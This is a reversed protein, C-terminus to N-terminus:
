GVLANVVQQAMSEWKAYAWPFASKQVAQAATALSMRDWGSVTVLVNFFANTSYEPNMLQAVTGWGCSTRQQFLGVSDHDVSAGQHPYQMSARVAPNAQNYLSSEQMATAIGIVAARKSLGRQRAVKVIIAANNMQTQNLGAVPRPPPPPAPPAPPPPPTKPAAPPGPKPAIRTPDTDPTPRDDARSARFDALRDADLNALTPTGGAAAKAPHHMAPLLVTGATAALAAATLAVAPVANATYHRRVAHRAHYNRRRRHNV